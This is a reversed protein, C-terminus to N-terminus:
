LMKGGFHRLYAWSYEVASLLSAASWCSILRIISGRQRKNLLSDNRGWLASMESAAAGASLLNTRKVAVFDYSNRCDTPLYCSCPRLSCSREMPQEAWFFVRLFNSSFTESFLHIFTLSRVIKWASLISFVYLLSLIQPKDVSFCCFHLFFWQFPILDNKFCTKNAKTSSSNNNSFDLDFGVPPSFVSLWPAPRGYRWSLRVIRGDLWLTERFDTKLETSFYPHFTVCLNGGGHRDLDFYLWSNEIKVALNAPIQEM